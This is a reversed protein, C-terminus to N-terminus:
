HFHFRVDCGAAPIWGPDRDLGAIRVPLPLSALDIHLDIREGGDQLQAPLRLLAPVLDNADDLGLALALRERLAHWLRPHRTRVGAARQPARERLWQALPDDAFARGAYLRGSALLFRWPSCDLTRPRRPQTFDGYLGLQLAANLLFLLGGFATPLFAAPEVQAYDPAQPIANAVTRPVEAETGEVPGSAPLAAQAHSEVAVPSPSALSAASKLPTAPRRRPVASAAASPLSSAMAEATAPESRAAVLAATSDHEMAVGSVLARVQLAGSAAMPERALALLVHRLVANPPMSTVAVEVAALSPRWPAPVEAAAESDAQGMEALVAEEALPFVRALQRVLYQQEPPTWMALWRIAEGEELRALARPAVQVRQVWRARAAAPSPERLILKWWWHLALEGALAARALCALLEAEDAFWVVDGHVEGRAPRAAGTLASALAGYRTGTEPHALATWPAQLRRVLVIAQGPLGHRAPDAEALWRELAPRTARRQSLRAPVRATRIAHSKM